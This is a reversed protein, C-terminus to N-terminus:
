VKGWSVSGACSRSQAPALKGAPAALVNRDWKAVARFTILGFVLMNIGALLM